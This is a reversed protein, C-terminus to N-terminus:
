LVGILSYQSWGSSSAELDKGTPDMNSDFIQWLGSHSFLPNYIDWEDWFIINVVYTKILLFLRVSTALLAVILITLIIKQNLLQVRAFFMSLNFM